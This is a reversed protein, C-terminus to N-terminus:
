DFSYVKDVDLHSSLFEWTIVPNLDFRGILDEILDESCKKLLFLWHDNPNSILLNHIM